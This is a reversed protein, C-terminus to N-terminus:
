SSTCTSFPIHSLYQPRLRTETKDSRATGKIENISIHISLQQTHNPQFKIKVTNRVVINALKAAPLCIVANQVDINEM